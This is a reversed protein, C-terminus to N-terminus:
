KLGTWVESGTSTSYNHGNAAEMIAAYCWTLGPKVDTFTVLSGLNAAVYATDCTRNLVRNMFTVCEGRQMNRTPGCSGDTYGTIWGNSTATAIYPYAWNTSKLDTYSATASEDVGFMAVVLKIFEARTINRDPKFSGDPYGNIIEANVLTSVAANYWKGASVDSFSNSTSYYMERSDDTLLNYLMQAAAARTMPGSPLFKGNGVGQVYAIHDTTLM